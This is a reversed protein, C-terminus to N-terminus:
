KEQTLLKVTQQEEASIRSYLQEERLRRMKALALFSFHGAVVPRARFGPSTGDSTDYWDSLPADSNQFLM